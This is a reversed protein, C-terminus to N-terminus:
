KEKMGLKFVVKRWLEEQCSSPNEGLRYWKELLNDQGEKQTQRRFGKILWVPFKLISGWNECYCEPHHIIFM